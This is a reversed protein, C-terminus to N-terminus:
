QEEGWGALMRYDNYAQNLAELAMGEEPADTEPDETLAVEILGDDLQSRRWRWTEQFRLWLNMVNEDGVAKGKRIVRADPFFHQDLALMQASSLIFYALAPWARRQQNLLEGYIALQLHRNDAMKERYKKEGAWKLDIIAVQGQQNTVVLDARGALQGGAFTGELTAESEVKTIGAKTLHRRLESMAKFTKQRFDQLDTGRGPLLLTSGETVILHDFAVEFWNGFTQDTQSLADAQGYYREVLHHALTGLLQFDESVSLIAGPQLKAPYRLIWQYPNFLFSELSSPSERVRKTIMLDAPLQWWRRYAPLPMDKSPMMGAGGTTLLQEMDLAQPQHDKDFLSEIMMWIPHLEAGAPPLMLVLQRRAALIPRLWTQAQMDLLQGMSPLTVDAYKLEAQESTSWPYNSPFKPAVLHWWVVIPSEDLVAGPRQLSTCAGVEKVHAPNTTGSATIQQILTELQQSGVTTEGQSVLAQLSRICENSQAAAASFTSLLADEANGLNAQLFSRLAEIREILFTLPVGVDKKHRRHELWFAIRQRTEPWDWGKELYNAELTALAEHWPDGGIGPCHALTEALQNRVQAPLPCIPHTLFALLSYINLPLWLQEVALPLLQLAPRFANPQSIGQCPRGAASLIDNLMSPEEAILLTELSHERLKEALWQGALLQTQAHVIVMSGDNQWFLPEPKMGQTTMVCAAQIQQLMSATSSGQIEKGMRSPLRQLVRQWRTPYASMPELHIILEIAPVRHALKQEIRALREGTSPAVLGRALTEVADMDSLRQSPTNALSGNWGHLYWTDRWSLLTAATGLEDVAFSRHYFRQENDCQKLCGRYQLIREAHGTETHLLGLGTELVNLLGFPGTVIENLTDDRCQTQSGDLDLGFWVILSM